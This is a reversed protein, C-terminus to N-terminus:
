YFNQYDELPGLGIEREDCSIPKEDSIWLGLCKFPRVHQVLSREPYESTSAEVPPGLTEEAMSHCAKSLCHGSNGVDKM